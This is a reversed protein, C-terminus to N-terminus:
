NQFLLQIQIKGLSKIYFQNDQRPVTHILDRLFAMLYYFVNYNVFQLSSLLQKSENLSSCEICNQYMSFPIVPDALSDLFKLLAAGVSYESLLNM